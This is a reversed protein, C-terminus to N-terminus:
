HSEEGEKSFVYKLRSKPLRVHDKAGFYTFSKNEKTKSQINTPKNKYCCFLFLFSPSKQTIKTKNQCKNKNEETREFFTTCDVPTKCM